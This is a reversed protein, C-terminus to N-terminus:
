YKQRGKKKWNSIMKNIQKEKEPNSGASNTNREAFVRESMSEEVKRLKGLTQKLQSITKTGVDSDLFEVLPQCERVIDKAVLRELEAKQLRTVLRNREKSKPPSKYVVGT